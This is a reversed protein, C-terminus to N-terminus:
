CCNRHFIHRGSSLWRMHLISSSCLCQMRYSQILPLSCYAHFLSFRAIALIGCGIELWITEVLIVFNPWSFIHRHWVHHRKCDCHRLFVWMPWSNAAIGAVRRWHAETQRINGTPTSVAAACISHNEYQGSHRGSHWISALFLNAYFYKCFFERIAVICDNAVVVNLM